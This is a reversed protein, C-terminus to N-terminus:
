PYALIELWREGGSSLVWTGQRSVILHCGNRGLAEANVNRYANGGAWNRWMRSRPM